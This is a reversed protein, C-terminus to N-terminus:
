RETVRREIINILSEIEDPLLRADLFPELRDLPLRLAHLMLYVAEDWSTMRGHGFCLEGRNFRTVAYRLVDRLTQFPTLMPVPQDPPARRIRHDHAFSVVLLRRNSSRPPTSVTRPHGVHRGSVPQVPQMPQVAAAVQL